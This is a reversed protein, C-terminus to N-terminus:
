KVTCSLAYTNPNVTVPSGGGDTMSVTATSSGNFVVDMSYPNFTYRITGTPCGGNAPITIGPSLTTWSVVYDASQNVGQGSYTYDISYGGNGTMTYTSGGLGAITTDYEYVYDYDITYGDQTVGYSGTGNLTHVVSSAGAAEQQPDGTSNLYQVTYLWDYTYGAYNYMYDYEWRQEAANWGYTGQKTDIGAAITSISEVMGIAQPAASQAQLQATQQDFDEGGSGNGPNNPSDDDSCGALSFMLLSMTALVTLLSSYKIIRM